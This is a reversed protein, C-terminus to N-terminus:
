IGAGDEYWMDAVLTPQGPRVVLRRASALHALNVTRLTADWCAELSRWLEPRVCEHCERDACGCLNFPGQLVQFVDALSIAMPPRALVYGGKLGRRSRVLQARRLPILIQEIYKESTGLREALTKASQPVPGAQALLVLCRLGTKFATTLGM